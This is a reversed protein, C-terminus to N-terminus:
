PLAYTIVLQPQGSAANGSAFSLFDARRNNNDGRQFYLRVQTLGTKNVKSRGSANLKATYWGGVATKGFTGVAVASAAAQFDTATLTRAGFTGTRVYAVDFGGHLEVFPAEPAIGTCRYDTVTIPGRRLVTMEM